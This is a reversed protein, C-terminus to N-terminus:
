LVHTGEYYDCCKTICCQNCKPKRANCVARGHMILALSYKTWNKKPIFSCLEAEIKGPDDQTTLGIKNTLRKVHTDVPFGPVGFAHGLIVNATKRGVGPLKVLEDMDNPVIGNYNHLLIEATKKINAAKQRFFGTSHILGELKAQPCATYDQITKLKKFLIKTVENVRRDTCQASLVTAVLLEFPNSHSLPCQIDPYGKTLASFIKQAKIALPSKKKNNM